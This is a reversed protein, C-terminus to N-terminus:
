GNLVTVYCARPRDRRSGGYFSVRAGPLPLRGGLVESRHLHYSVGEDSTLFGWGKGEDFQDVRGHLLVPAKTRDVRSARPPKGDRSTAPDYEVEVPEGVIPPPPTNGSSEGSWFVELHFFVEAGTSPSRAFGYLKSPNYM